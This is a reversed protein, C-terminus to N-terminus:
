RSAAPLLKIVEGRGHNPAIAYAAGWIIAGYVVVFFLICLVTLKIAPFLHTKM